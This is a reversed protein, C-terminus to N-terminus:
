HVFKVYDGEKLLYIPIKIKKMLDNKYSILNQEYHCFVAIDVIGFGKEIKRRDNSFYFKSLMYAWASIWIVIKGELITAMNEKFKSLKRKILLSSWWKFFIIDAFWIQQILEGIDDSWQLINEKSINIKSLLSTDKLFSKKRNNKQKAQYILLYKKTSYWIPLEEM